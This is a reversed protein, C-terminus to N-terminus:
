ISKDLVAGVILSAIQAFFGITTFIIFNEKLSLKKQMFIFALTLIAISIWAYTVM